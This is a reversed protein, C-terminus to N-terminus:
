QTLLRITLFTNYDETGEVDVTNTGSISVAWLTIEDSVTLYFVNSAFMSLANNLSSHIISTMIIDTDKKVVLYYRKDAVMDDAGWRINADIQYYGTIPVTFSSDTTDFDNGVDFSETDFLIKTEVGNSLNSQFGSLYVRAASRIDIRNDVTAATGAPDTGLENQIAIIAANSDNPVNARAIHTSTEVSIDTDIAMPYSSGSGAGLEAGFINATVFLFLVASLLKRM